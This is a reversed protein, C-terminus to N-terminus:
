SVISFPRRRQSQSIKAFRHVVKMELRLAIRSCCQDSTVKDPTNQYLCRMVLGVKGPDLGPLREAVMAEARALIHPDPEHSQADPGRKIDKRPCLSNFCRCM